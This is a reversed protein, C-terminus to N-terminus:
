QEVEWPRAAAAPVLGILVAREEGRTATVEVWAHGAVAPAGALPTVGIGDAVAARAEAPPAQMAALAEEAMRVADRREALRQAGSAQQRLAVVLTASLVGLVLVAMAADYIVFGRRRRM